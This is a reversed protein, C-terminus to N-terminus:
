TKYVQPRNIRNVGTDWQSNYIYNMDMQMGM